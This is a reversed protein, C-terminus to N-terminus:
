QVNRKIVTVDTKLENLTELIKSNVERQEFLHKDFKEELKNIAKENHDIDATQTANVQKMNENQSYGFGSGIAVTGIIAFLLTKIWSLRRDCINDHDDTDMRRDPGKYNPSSVRPPTM